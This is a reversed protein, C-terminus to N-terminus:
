EDQFSRRSKAYGLHEVTETQLAREVLQKTLGGKGIWDEPTKYSSDEGLDMGGAAVAQVLRNKPIEAVMM